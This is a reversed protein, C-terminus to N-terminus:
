NGETKTDTQNSEKRSKRAHRHEEQLIAEMSTFPSLLIPDFPLLNFDGWRCRLSSVVFLSFLLVVM